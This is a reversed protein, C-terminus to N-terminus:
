IPSVQGSLGLHYPKSSTMYIKGKTFVLEKNKIPTILNILHKILSCCLSGIVWLSLALWNLLSIKLSSKKRKPTFSNAKLIYLKFRYPSLLDGGRSVSWLPQHCSHHYTKTKGVPQWIRKHCLLHQLRRALTQQFLSFFCFLSVLRLSFRLPHDQLLESVAESTYDTRSPLGFCVTGGDVALSFEM